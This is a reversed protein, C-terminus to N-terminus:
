HRNNEILNLILRTKIKGTSMIISSLAWGKIAYM